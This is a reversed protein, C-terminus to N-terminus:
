AIRRNLAFRGKNDDYLTELNYGSTTTTVIKSSAKVADPNAALCMYRFCDAWDSAWDHLPTESFMLLNDNWQRRYAKLAEVLDGTTNAQIKVTPFTKRAASIGDRVKHSPVINPRVGSALFQEMISKGTQLNKARADHPLWIEGLEGDFQHLKEIHYFIDTGTTAEAAVIHIGMKTVQFWICVTADTFGLDFAVQVPYNPDYLEEEVVRGESFMLNVENSYIAGKLASDFSCEYEQAFEEPDMDRSLAALEAASIIGSTSAKLTLHFWESPTREALKYADYFLNKGRPTSAFVGWGHRDSLAPRIIQPFVSPKFMAYEDMVAGDLYMGRLSDANDAGLVYITADNVLTIKLEAEQPPKGLYKEGFDKIYSWAIRKAQSYTPGIYALQPKYLRCELAGVILDNVLAVTKGARRHTNMIGWRQGRNHFPAFQERPKYVLTM